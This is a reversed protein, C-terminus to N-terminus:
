VYKPVKLALGISSRIYSMPLVTLMDKLGYWHERNRLKNRTKKMVNIPRSWSRQGQYLNPRQNFYQLNVSWLKILYLAIESTSMRDLTSVEFNFPNQSIKTKFIIVKIQYVIDCKQPLFDTFSFINVMLFLILFCRHVLRRIWLNVKIAHINLDHILTHSLRWRDSRKICIDERLDPTCRDRM